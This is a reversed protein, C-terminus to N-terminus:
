KLWYQKGGLIDYTFLEYNSLATSKFPGENEYYSQSLIPVEKCVDAALQMHDPKELNLLDFLTVTLCNPSTTPLTTKSQKFRTINSYEVEELDFNAWILYPTVYSLDRVKKDKNNNIKEFIGPSHDGYWLVVTKEDFNELENLFEGLYKDSLNLTQAYVEIASKDDKSVDATVTYKRNKFGDKGYGAHNQMTILSILTKEDNEKLYKMTEKYASRDNIYERNEDKDKFEMETEDIFRDFGEKVLSINRKYMGGNFPHIALTQYGAEKAIHAISPVTEVHPVLDVYPVTGIWYDTMATDVEFEINATGGGYDVTYMQGVAYNKSEKDNKILNRLVPTVEKPSIKVYDSIVSLDYYSEDLVIVINYEADALSNTTKEKPEEGPTLTRTYSDKIEAIKEESYGDPAKLNFKSWNYLFGMIFGNNEYNLMQNWATFKTNLFPIEEYREGSHNRIFNSCSLFGVIGVVFITFRFIRLNKNWFRKPAVRDKVDFFTKTLYNLLLTLGIALAVAILMRVLSWVDIFKTITGAQDTLSFDDPMLPQGRFAQKQASIYMIIISIVFTIGAGTWPTRFISSIVLEMFALLLTNWLFVLPRNFIFEWTRASDNNFFRWQIFYTIFFASVVIILIRTLIRRGNKDLLRKRM